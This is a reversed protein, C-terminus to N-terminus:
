NSWTTPTEALKLACEFCLISLGPAFAKADELSKPLYQIPQECAHCAGIANDALMMPTGPEYPVCVYISPETDTPRRTM